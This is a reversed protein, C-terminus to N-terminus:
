RYWRKLRYDFYEPSTDTLKVWTNFGPHEVNILYNNERFSQASPVKLMLYIKAKLFEQTFAALEQPYPKKNWYDPLKSKDVETVLADASVSLTMVVRKIPLNNDNAITELKALAISTSTYITWQGRRNWRGETFLIGKPPWMDKHKAKEIHYLEM